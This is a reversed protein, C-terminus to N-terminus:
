AARRDVEDGTIPAPREWSGTGRALLHLALADAGAGPGVRAAVGARLSAVDLPGGLLRDQLDELVAVRCLGFGPVHAVEGEAVLPAVAAPVDAPAAVALVEAVRTEAVWGAGVLEDALTGLPTPSPDVAEALADLAALLAPPTAVPLTPVDALGGSVGLALVPRARGVVELAALVTGREAGSPVPVAAVAIGGRVFVFEPLVLAGDVAIPELARRMTWGGLRGGARRFAAVEDALVAGRVVGDVSAVARLKPRIPGVAKADVPFALTQDGLHVTAEGSPTAPALAILQAACRALRGGHNSWTGHANRRGRLVVSEPGTRRWEVGHRDCVTAVATAALGPLELRLTSAHRLVSVTLTANYRAVTDEATPRPGIRELLANREADLHILSEVAQATLGLPAAVEGLFAEREAPPVVGARTQNAALYVHARLDAPTLLDWAALASAAEEGVVEAFTPTRYRYSDALCALLCRALKPDGLLDLVLDPSLDGRRRGVMGDLYGIALEVKPLVTRDRLYRPYLKRPGGGEKDKRTTKAIDQRRFAM